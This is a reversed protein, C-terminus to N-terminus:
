KKKDRKKVYFMAPRKNQSTRRKKYFGIFVIVLLCFIFFYLIFPSYPINQGLEHSPTHIYIRSAIKVSLSGSAGSGPKEFVKFWVEWKKDYNLSKKDDPIDITITFYSNSKASILVSNSNLTVWSIDPIFSYGNTISDSPPNEIKAIVEIDYNYPNEVCIKNYQIEDDTFKSINITLKAPLLRIGAKTPQSSLVLINGFLFLFIFLVTVTKKFKGDGM